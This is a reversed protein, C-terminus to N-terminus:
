LLFFNFIRQTFSYLITNYLTYSHIKFVICLIVIVYLLQLLTLVKPIGSQICEDLIKEDEGSLNSNEDFLDNRHCNVKASKDQECVIKEIDEQVSPMSLASLNSQSGVPSIDAPTDETCYVHVTDSAVIEMATRNKSTGVPTKVSTAHSELRTPISNRQYPVLISPAESVSKQSNLSQRYRYLYIQLYKM